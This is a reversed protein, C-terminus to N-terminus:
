IYESGRAQELALITQANDREVDSLISDQRADFDDPAYMPEYWSQASFYRALDDNRFQRGHRAYIENRAIYLEWNSLGDLEDTTYRHSDSDALVYTGGEVTTGTGGDDNGDDGTNGGDDTDITGDAGIKEGVGIITSPDVGNGGTSTNGGGNEGDSNGGDTGNGGDDPYDAVPPTLIADSGEPVTKDFPQIVVIALGVVAVLAIVSSIVAATVLRGQGPDKPGTTRRAPDNAPDNAPNDAPRPAPEPAPRPAPEPAPRPIPAGCYACYPDDNEPLQAKCNPCIM